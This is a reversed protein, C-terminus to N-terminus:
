VRAFQVEFTSGRGLESTVTIKGGFQEVKERVTALGLGTGTTKTTFFPAFIKERTAADMGVGADKVALRVTKEDVQTRISLPGGEPMADRANVALNLLVQEIGMRTARVTAGPVTEIEVAITPGLLRRLIPLFSKVEASVDVEHLETPETRGLSLLHRTMLAARATADDLDDLLDSQDNGGEGRTVRLTDSVNSIVTLLNNFDHAIGAALNGVVEMKQGQVSRLLAADREAAAAVARAHSLAMSDIGNRMLVAMLILSVTLATWANIPSYTGLQPPLANNLELFAVFACWASSVIAVSVGARGSVVYGVLVACVGFSAANQGEMGGFFLTVLAILVWFFASVGWAVLIVRGRRVAYALGFIGAFALGYFVLSVRVDNGEAFLSAAFGLVGMAVMTRLVSTLLLAKRAKEEDDM